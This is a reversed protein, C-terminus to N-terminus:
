GVQGDIQVSACVVHESGKWVCCVGRGRVEAERDVLKYLVLALIVHPPTRVTPHTAYVECLVQPPLPPLRPFPHSLSTMSYHPPHTPPSAPQHAPPPCLAHRVGRVAGPTSTLLHPFFRSLSAMSYHPPHTPSGTHPVPRPTCRACCRRPTTHSAPPPLRPLTLSPRGVKLTMPAALGTGRGGSQAIRCGMLPYILM